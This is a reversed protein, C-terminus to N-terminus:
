GFVPDFCDKTCAWDCCKQYGLCDQDSSCRAICTAIKGKPPVPCKGPKELVPDLCANGCEITCCKKKGPCQRDSSCPFFCPDLEGPPTTAPCVGPKESCAQLCEKETGFRNENGGCGGYIFKECKGSKPNFFFSPIYAECKGQKPPLLCIDRKKNAYSLGAWFLLLGLLLLRSGMTGKQSALM